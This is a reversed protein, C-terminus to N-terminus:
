MQNKLLDQVTERQVILKVKGEELWLVAPRRAGNYNSSMSLHYAGAGVPYGAVTAGDWELVPNPDWDRLLFGNLRWRFQLPPRGGVVSSVAFTVPRPSCLRHQPDPLDDTLSVSTIFSQPPVNSVIPGSQTVTQGTSTADSEDVIQIAIQYSTAIPRVIDQDCYTYFCGTWKFGVKRGPLVPDNGTDYVTGASDRVTYEVRQFTM